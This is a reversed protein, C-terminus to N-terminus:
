GGRKVVRLEAIQIKGDHIKTKVDAVLGPKLVKAAKLLDKFKAGREDYFPVIPSVNVRLARAKGNQTVVIVANSDATKRFHHFLANKYAKAVSKLDQPAKDDIKPIDAPLKVTPTKTTPTDTKTKSKGAVTMGAEFKGSLRWVKVGMRVTRQCTLMTERDLIITRYVNVRSAQHRLLPKSEGIRWYYTQGKNSSTVYVQHPSWQSLSLFRTENPNKWKAVRRNTAVDIVLASNWNALLLHKGDSTRDIRSPESDLRAIATPRKTSGVEWYQLHHGGISSNGASYLRKGDKSFVIAHVQSKHGRVTAKRDGKIYDFIQIDGSSGSVAVWSRSPHVAVRVARYPTKIRRLLKMSAVDLVMVQKPDGAAFAYRGNPAFALDLVKGEADRNVAIQKWTKTNWLVVQKDVGASLLKSKDKSLAISFVSNRHAKLYTQLKLEVANAISTSGLTLAFAIRALTM